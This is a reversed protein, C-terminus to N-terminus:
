AVASTLEIKGKRHTCSGHTCTTRDGYRYEPSNMDTSLSLKQVTLSVMVWHDREARSRAKFVVSRGEKGLQAVRRIKGTARGGRDRGDDAGSKFWSKRKGHWLVFCTMTDEDTSSWGDAIYMRPLGGEHGPRAKEYGDAASYLLDSSTILGSYIYCQELNIATVREHQIHKELGGTWSRVADQFIMLHGHALVVNVRSFSAHMRPKRFLQGSLMVTRCCGIGCMHYLEPSAVAQSFEWKQAFQGVYAEQDEDIKLIDLNQHRVSKFLSM